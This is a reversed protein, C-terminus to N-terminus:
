REDVVPSAEALVDFSSPRRGLDDRSLEPIVARPDPPDACGTALLDAVAASIPEGGGLELWLWQGNPNLELFWPEHHGDLILDASCVAVGLDRCMAVLAARLSAAVDHPRVRTDSERIDVRDRGDDLPQQEFSFAARDVVVVRLDRGRIRRQFIVPCHALTSLHDLSSRTLLQAGQFAQRSAAVPKYIIEEGRQWAEAAFARVQAPDTTILTPPVQLGARRAAVLQIWKNRARSEALPENVQLPGEWPDLHLAQLHGRVNDEAFERALPETLDPSLVPKRPRRHWVAQVDALDIRPADARRDELVRWAGAGAPDPLPRAVRLAAHARGAGLTLTLESGGPYTATDFRVVALEPHRQGLRTEVAAAHSDDSSAEILVVRKRAEPL